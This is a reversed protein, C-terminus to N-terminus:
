TFNQVQYFRTKQQYTFSILLRHLNDPLWFNNKKSYFSIQLRREIAKIFM